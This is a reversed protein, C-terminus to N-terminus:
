LVSVKLAAITNSFRRQTSLLVVKYGMAVIEMISTPVTKFASKGPEKTNLSAGFCLDGLIDFTLHQTWNAMNRPQSWGGSDPSASRAGALSDNDASGSILHVWRDTHYAILPSAAKMSTETFILNLAKRRKAHEEPTPACMTHHDDENRQWTKYFSSRHVNARAGYIDSYADTSNFLILNPAARFKDGTSHGSNATNGPPCLPSCVM